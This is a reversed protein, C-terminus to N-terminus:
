HTKEEFAILDYKECYVFTRGTIKSTHEALNNDVIIKQRTSDNLLNSTKKEIHIIANVMNDVLTLGNVFIMEESTLVNRVIAKM